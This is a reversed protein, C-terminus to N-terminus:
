WASSLAHRIIQPLPDDEIGLEPLSSPRELKLNEKLATISSSHIPFPIKFLEVTKLALLPILSPIPIFLCRKKLLGKTEKLIDILPRLEPQFINFVAPRPKRIINGMIRVLTDLSIVPVPHRGGDMVPMLPWRKLMQMMRGFLGGNGLVLGPRVVPQREKLFFTELEYKVAAYESGSGPKASYSTCFLQTAVGAARAAAFWKRTGEINRRVNDKGKFSHALHIVADMGEFIGADFERNLHMPFYSTVVGALSEIPGTGRSGGCVEIDLSKLHIALRSGIFGNIGTILVRM